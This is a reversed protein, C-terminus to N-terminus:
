DAGGEVADRLCGAPLIVSAGLVEIGVLKKHEDFRLILTAGPTHVSPVHEEVFSSMDGLVIDAADAEPDYILRM